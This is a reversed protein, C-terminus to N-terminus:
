RIRRTIFPRGRGQINFRKAKANVRPVGGRGAVLRWQIRPLHTTHRSMSDFLDLPRFCILPVILASERM